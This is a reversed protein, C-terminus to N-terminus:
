MDPLINFDPTKLNRVTYVEFNATACISGVALSPVAARAKLVAMAM